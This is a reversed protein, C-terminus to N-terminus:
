FDLKTSRTEVLSELRKVICSLRKEVDPIQEPHIRQKMWRDVWTMGSLLVSSQDLVQILQLDTASLPRVIQYAQLAESWRDRDDAFLSGLLRSLDTGVHDCKTAAPDIFGSVQGNAFLIHDSWLDRWCPFIFCQHAAAKQLEQDVIPAVVPFKMLISQLTSHMEAPATATSLMAQNLRSPSWGHLLKRREQIAPIFAHHSRFWKSGAGTSSYQESKFHLRALTEMMSSLEGKSIQNGQKSEGPLWPELQWYTGDHLAASTSIGPASCPVSVPLEVEALFGLFRHLELIRERPFSQPPWRRLAYRKGNITVCYVQAGSFGPTAMQCQEASVRIGTFIEVVQQVISFM